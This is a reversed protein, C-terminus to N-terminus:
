NLLQLATIQDQKIQETLKQLSHFKLDGRIFHIFHIRIKENYIDKNFDFINVEITRSMGNITPRNGIYGMGQLITGDEPFEILVAYIGDAPILKYTEEVYLNATPFGITRGIQDGKIVLGTLQFPYGLFDSATKVDGATLAERVKTSSVAVDHIDQELIEEVKFGYVPACEELKLFNGKRDKGFHHDYGIIIKRTGIKDVLIQKIYDGPTMNSFDRTFPTIILHDIGLKEMLEIKEDITTILKLSQDEPHLIMRPHPFFTLIVSEAELRKAEEVLRSIIKRHGLHVGDFTGITVIANELKLFNDIHKYVKM